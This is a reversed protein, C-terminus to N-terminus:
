AGFMERCAPLGEVTVEASRHKEWDAKSLRLRVQTAPEGRRVYREIGDDVYGLRRSVGLSRANDAYAASLAFEAGLGAFALHLVAARMRAGIGQGQHRRGLWSGTTVERLVAFDRAVIGQVGLPVGARVVALELNWAQPTWAGWVHWHYQLMRLRVEAPTGDTWPHTFPMWSPDHVGDAALDALAFLDDQTPLRLELDDVRVRLDALPWSTSM